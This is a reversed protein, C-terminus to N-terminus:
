PLCKDAVEAHNVTVVIVVRVDSVKQRIIVGVRKSDDGDNKVFRNVRAADIILGKRHHVALSKIHITAEGDAGIPQLRTPGGPRRKVGAFRILHAQGTANTIQRAIMQVRDGEMEGYGCGGRRLVVALYRSHGCVHIGLAHRDILVPCLEQHRVLVTVQYGAILHTGPIYQRVIRDGGPGRVHSVRSIVGASVHQIRDGVVHLDDVQAIASNHGRNGVSQNRWIPQQRIM